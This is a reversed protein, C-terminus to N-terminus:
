VQKNLLILPKWLIWKKKAKKNLIFHQGNKAPKGNKNKKYNTPTALAIGGAIIAEISETNIKIGSFIGADVSIGSTNWFKTNKRILPTYPPKINIYIWVKDATPSLEYGTVNGVQIQRYYVPSNKKLSGLMSTELVINLGKKKIEIKPPTDLALINTCLEGKGPRIEIYQGSIITDLNNIGSINFEPAVIWVKTDKRFLEKSNKNVLAKTIILSMKKDYAIKKIKGITIGQYKLEM